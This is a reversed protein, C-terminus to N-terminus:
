AHALEPAAARTALPLASSLLRHILARKQTAYAEAQREMLAIEKHLTWDLDAIRRQEEISPIWVPASVLADYTLGFRTAGQAARVFHQRFRPHRMQAALFRGDIDTGKPRALATHYGLVVDAGADLVVSTQAIDERTESDKTLLVDGPQVAFREIEAPSATARMFPLADTIYPRTWVDMYNCLRVAPEGARSHKDIGSVRVDVVDGLTRVSWDAPPSTPDNGAAGFGRFRRRGTVLEHLLARKFARKASLVDRSREILEDIVVLPRAISRQAEKGEPYEVPLKAFNTGSIELFTSGAAWREMEGRLSTVLYYLFDPDVDDAPVISKFGQNTALPIKAIAAAGVTARTCVVVSGAPLLESSSDKLGAPTITRSTSAIHRSPLATIDTPTCWPIGGDWYRPDSTAPTGGSRIEGLDALVGRKWIVTM